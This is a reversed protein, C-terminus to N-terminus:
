SCFLSGLCICMEMWDLRVTRRPVSLFLYLAMGHYWGEYLGGIRSHRCAYSGAPTVMEKHMQCCAKEQLMFRGRSWCLRRIARNCCGESLCERNSLVFCAIVAAGYLLNRSLLATGASQCSICSVALLRCSDLM